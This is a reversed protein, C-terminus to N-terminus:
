RDAREQWASLFEYLAMASNLHPDDGAHLLTVQRAASFMALRAFAARRPEQVLFTEYKAIFSEFHDPHAHLENWISLPPGLQPLMYDVECWQQLDRTLGIPEVWIRVGDDAEVTDFISKVRIM